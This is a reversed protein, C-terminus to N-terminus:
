VGATALPREVQWLLIRPTPAVAPEEVSATADLQEVARAFMERDIESNHEALYRFSLHGCSECVTREVGASTVTLTETHECKRTKGGLM